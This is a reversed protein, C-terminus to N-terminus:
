ARRAHFLDDADEDRPFPAEEFTPEMSMPRSTAWARDVSDYDSGKVVSLSSVGM